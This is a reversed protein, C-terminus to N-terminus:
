AEIGSPNVDEMRVHTLTLLLLLTLVAKTSKRGCSMDVPYKNYKGM